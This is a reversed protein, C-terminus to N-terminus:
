YLLKIFKVDKDYRRKQLAGTKETVGFSFTSKSPKSKRLLYSLNIKRTLDSIHSEMVKKMRSNDFKRPSKINAHPFIM